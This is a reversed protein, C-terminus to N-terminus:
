GFILFDFAPRGRGSGPGVRGSPKKASARTHSSTRARLTAAGTLRADRIWAVDTTFSIPRGLIAAADWAEVFEEFRDGIRSMRAM